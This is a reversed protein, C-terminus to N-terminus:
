YNKWQVTQRKKIEEIMKVMQKRVEKSTWEGVKPNILDTQPPSHIKLVDQKRMIITTKYQDSLISLEAEITSIDEVLPNKETIHGQNQYIITYQCRSLM